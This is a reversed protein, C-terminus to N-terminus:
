GSGAPEDVLTQAVERLKRNSTQSLQVLLVHM